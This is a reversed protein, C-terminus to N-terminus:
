ECRSQPLMIYTMVCPLLSEPADELQETNRQPQYGNSRTVLYDTEQSGPQPIPPLVGSTQTLSLSALSSPPPSPCTIATNPITFAEVPEEYYRNTAAAPRRDVCDTEPAESKCHLKPIAMLEAESHHSMDVFVPHCCRESSLMLKDKLVPKPIPPYFAQKICEWHRYCLIVFLSLLGFLTVLTICIAWILNDTLSNLTANIHTAGCQGIATKAKVTVSYSGIPLNTATLSTAQPNDTSINRVRRNNNDWCYLVYGQIFAPQEQLSVRKWTVVVDSNRQTWTLPKLLDDQILKEKVYGERRELLVPARHTCAHVSLLYRKGEELNKSFIKVNTESPPVRLWDLGSTGMVPYWDVIYGCSASPSTSWSLNFGGNSGLIRSYKVVGGGPILIPVTVASPSSSGHSNRATVSVTYEDMSDLSLALTNKPHRVSTSERREPTKTPAWTIDYGIIDGHSQNALPVKWTIVTKNDKEQMWVDLAHPVDGLTHFTVSSSWESWKWHHQTTTCRIMMAYTWNPILDTLVASTLGVGVHQSTSNHTEGHRVNVQCTINLDNYTQVAWEWEVHVNRSDVKSAKVGKPAFMHVRKTLDAMHTLTVTGLPNQATLTWLREGADVQMKHSCRAKFGEACESGLLRYTTQMSQPLHTNRGVTWLCEISQLDRTECSLDQDAPPYGIYACAGNHSKKTACKVDTGSASSPQSLDVTLVHTHTSIQSENWHSNSSGSLYFKDLVEGTPLVCCFTARSGVEFPKDRPFVQPMGLAEHGDEESHGDQASNCFLSVLLLWPIM